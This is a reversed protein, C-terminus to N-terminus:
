SRIRARELHVVGARDIVAMYVVGPGFGAITRFPPLQVRDILVGRRNIVDYVPRGDVLQTTQVWINDDRDTTLAHERFPPDYDPLESLAAKGAINPAVDSKAGRGINAGGGRRGGANDDFVKQWVAAASDILQTKRADNVRQWDFPIKPSTTRKGSPDIWDVHYDRGRVIALTGDHLMTWQDVVPLADPTTVISQLKGDADVRIDRLYKPVRIYAATDVTRSELDVRLLTGSDVTVKGIDFPTGGSFQRLRQTIETPKGDQLLQMGLTLTMVGPLVGRFYLLRGRADLVVPGFSSGFSQADDPRPIAMVRATAGTPSLVLMSLMSPAILLASDGRYRILTAWSMGYANATGATTDAAVTARSLTSDLVLVRRGVNDDLMVRGGPMALAISVSKLSISDASVRELAGVQRVAPAKQARVSSGVVFAVLAVMLMRKM